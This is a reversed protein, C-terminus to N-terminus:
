NTKPKILNQEDQKLQTCGVNQEEHEMDPYTIYLFCMQLNRM